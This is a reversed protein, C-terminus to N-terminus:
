QAQCSQLATEVQIKDAPSEEEASGRVRKRGLNAELESQSLRPSLGMSQDNLGDVRGRRKAGVKHKLKSSHVQAEDEDINLAPGGLHAKLLAGSQNADKRGGETPSTAESKSYLGDKSGEILNWEM